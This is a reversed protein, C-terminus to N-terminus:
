APPMTATTPTTSTKLPLLFFAYPDFCCSSVLFPSARSLSTLTKLGNSGWKSMCKWATQMAMTTHIIVQGLKNERAKNICENALLRGIGEGRIAPDVALLRFGAANEERYEQKAM